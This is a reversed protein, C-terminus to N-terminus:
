RRTWGAGPAGDPWGPPVPRGTVAGLRALTSPPAALTGVTGDASALELTWWGGPLDLPATVVAAPRALTPRLDEVPLPCAVGQRDDQDRRASAM